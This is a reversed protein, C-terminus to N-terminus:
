SRITKVKGKLLDRIKNFRFMSHRFSIFIIRLLEQSSMIMFYVRKEKVAIRIVPPELPKSPFLELDTSVRLAFPVGFASQGSRGSQLYFLLKQTLREQYMRNM